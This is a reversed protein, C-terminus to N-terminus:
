LQDASLECLWKFNNINKTGLQNKIFEIIELLQGIAKDQILTFQPFSEVSWNIACNLYIHLFCVKNTQALVTTFRKNKNLPHPFIRRLIM